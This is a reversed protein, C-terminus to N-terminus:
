HVVKLNLSPMIMGNLYFSLVYQLLIYKHALIIM